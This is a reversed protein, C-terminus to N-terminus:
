DLMGHEHLELIRWVEPMQDDPINSCFQEVTTNARVIITKGHNGSLYETDRFRAINGYDVKLWNCMGDLHIGTLGNDISEQLKQKLNERNM